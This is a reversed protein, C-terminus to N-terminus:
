EMEFSDMVKDSEKIQDKKRDQTMGSSSYQIVLFFLSFFHLWTKYKCWFPFIITHVLSNATKGDKYTKFYMTIILKLTCCSIGPQFIKRKEPREILGSEKGANQPWNLICLNLEITFYFSCEKILEVLSSDEINPLM